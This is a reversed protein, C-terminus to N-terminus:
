LPVYSDDTEFGSYPSLLPMMAEVQQMDLTTDDAVEYVSPSSEDGKTVDVLRVMAYRHRQQGPRAQSRNTQSYCNSSTHTKAADVKGAQLCHFCSPQQATSAARRQPQAFSQSQNRAKIQFQPKPKQQFQSMALRTIQASEQDRSLEALMQPIQDSIGKQNCALTPKAPTFLHGRTKRIHNPLRPDIKVLWDKVLLSEALPSLTEPAVLVKGKCISNAPLMANMYFAKLKMWAHQHTFKKSFDFTMEDGALLNEKKTQLDFTIDIQDLIWQVSTSERMISDFFGEPSYTAWCTLFATLDCRMQNTRNIAATQAYIAAQRDAPDNVPVPDVVVGRGPDEDLPLWTDHTGGPLFRTWVPTAGTFAKM